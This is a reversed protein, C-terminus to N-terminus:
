DKGERRDEFEDKILGRLKVVTQPDNKEDRMNLRKPKELFHLLDVILKSLEVKFKKNRDVETSCEILTSKLKIVDSIQKSLNENLVKAEALAVKADELEQRLVPVDKVLADTSNLADTAKERACEADTAYSEAERVLDEIHELKDEIRIIMNVIFDILDKEFENFSNINHRICISKLQWKTDYDKISEIAYM